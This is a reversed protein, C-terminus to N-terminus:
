YLTSPALAEVGQSEKKCARQALSNGLITTTPSGNESTQLAKLCATVNGM